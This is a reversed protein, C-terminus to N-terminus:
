VCSIKGRFPGPFASFNWRDMLRGCVARRSVERNCNTLSAYIIVIKRSILVNHLIAYILLVIVSQFTRSILAFVKNLVVVIFLCTHTHTHATNPSSEREQAPGVASPHGSVRTFRGSYTLWGRRSLREDKRPIYILLLSCDAVETQHPAM